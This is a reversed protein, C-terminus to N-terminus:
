IKRAVQSLPALAGKGQKRLQSRGLFFKSHARFFVFVVLRKFFIKVYQKLVYDSVFYRYRYQVSVGRNRSADTFAHKYSLNNDRM